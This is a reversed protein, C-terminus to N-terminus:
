ALAVAVGDFLFFEFSFVFAKGVFLNAASGVVGPLLPLLVSFAGRELSCGFELDLDCTAFLCVSRFVFRGATAALFAFASFFAEAEELCAPVM